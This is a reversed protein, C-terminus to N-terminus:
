LKITERVEIKHITIETNLDQISLQTLRTTILYRRFYNTLSTKVSFTLLDRYNYPCSLVYTGSLRETSKSGVKFKTRPTM